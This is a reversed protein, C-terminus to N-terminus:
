KNKKMKEGVRYKLRESIFVWKEANLKQGRLHLGL